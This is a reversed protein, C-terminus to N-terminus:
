PWDESNEGPEPPPLRKEAKPSIHKVVRRLLRRTPDSTLAPAAQYRAILVPLAAQARHGQLGLVLYAMADELTAGPPSNTGRLHSVLAPVLRRDEGGIRGIAGMVAYSAHGSQVCSVLAPLAMRAKEYHLGLALAANDRLDANTTTTLLNTLVSMGTPGINAIAWTLPLDADARKLLASLAPLAPAANSGLESFAAFAAIHRRTHPQGWTSARSPDVWSSLRDPLWGAAQQRMRDWPSPRAQMWRILWPIANTGIGSGAETAEGADEWRAAASGRSSPDVLRSWLEDHVHGYVDNPIWVFDPSDNYFLQSLTM